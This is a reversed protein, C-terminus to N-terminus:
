LSSHQAFQSPNEMADMMRTLIKANNATSTALESRAGGFYWSYSTATAAGVMDARWQETAEEAAKQNGQGAWIWVLYFHGVARLLPDVSPNDAVPRLLRLADTYKGNLVYIEGIDLAGATQKADDTKELATAAKLACALDKLYDACIQMLDTLTAGDSPNLDAIKWFVDVAQQYHIKSSDPNSSGRAWSVYFSALEYRRSATDDMRVAELLLPESNEWDKQGRLYWQGRQWLVTAHVPQSLLGAPVAEAAKLAVDAKEFDSHRIEQSAFQVDFSAVVNADLRTKVADIAHSASSLESESMSVFLDCIETNFLDVDPVVTLSQLLVQLAGSRDGSFRLSRAWQLRISPQIQLTAPLTARNQGSLEISRHYQGAAKAYNRAAYWSDGSQNLLKIMEEPSEQTAQSIAQDFLQAANLYDGALYQAQGYLEKADADQPEKAVLQKLLPLAADPRPQCDRTADNCLLQKAKSRLVGSDLKAPNEDIQGEELHRVSELGRLATSACQDYFETLSANAAGDIEKTERASWLENNGRVIALNAWVVSVHSHLVLNRDKGLEVGIKLTYDGAGTDSSEASVPEYERTQGIRQVIVGKLTSAIAAEEASTIPAKVIESRVNIRHTAADRLRLGLVDAMFTFSDLATDDRIPDSHGYILRPVCNVAEYLQYSLVNADRSSTSQVTPSINGRIIYFTSNKDATPAIRTPPATESQSDSCTPIDTVRQLDFQDLSALTLALLTTAFGSLDQRGSQSLPTFEVIYVRPRTAASQATMERPFVTSLIATVAIVNIVACSRRRQKM